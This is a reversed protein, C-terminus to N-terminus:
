PQPSPRNPPETSSPAPATAPPAFMRALSLALRVQAEPLHGVLEVDKGHQSLALGDLASGFMPIADNAKRRLEPWAVAFKSAQAEEDFSLRLRVAPSADATMALRLSRPLPLTEDELRVFAHVDGITLELAADKNGGDFHTLADLWRQGAADGAGDEAAEIRRLDEPRGLLMLDDGLAHFERPDDRLKKGPLARIRADGRHRAALFTMSVDRPDPTSILLAQLDDFPNLTTGDLLTHYDPLTSLLADVGQRHPSKALLPGRLILTINATHPGVTRLDEVPPPAAPKPKAGAGPTAPARPRSRPKEGGPPVADVSPPASVHKQMPLIEVPLPARYALLHIAPLGFFFFLHFFFSAGLAILVM